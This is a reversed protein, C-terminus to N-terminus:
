QILDETVKTGIRVFRDIPINLISDNQILGCGRLYDVLSTKTKEDPVILGKFFSPAIREKLMVEHGGHFISHETQEKRIFELIGDRKHYSEDGWWWPQGPNYNRNGFSDSHYQYTGTELADLSILLRVKSQYNLKNFSMKDQCNKATLLQTFVSDSGGSWYDAGFGGLGHHGFDNADRIETSLMGTRIMSAVREYLEDDHHVGTIAATLARAGEGRAAEALGVIRYRVRGDFLHEAQMRHFYADFVGQMDPSKEIMKAKLQDLPLSFFEETREFPTAERPFFTRFLHGMKLREIDEQTSLCLAQDLNVLSLMEHFEYLTQNADIRIVVRDYLSPQNDASGILISGLGDIKIKHAEGPGFFQKDGGPLFSGSEISIGKAHSGTLNLIDQMEEPKIAKLQQLAEDIQSRFAHNVKFDLETVEKGDIIKTRFALNEGKVLAGGNGHFHSGFRVENGKGDILVVEKTDISERLSSLPHHVLHGADRGRLIRSFLTQIRKMEMYSNRRQIQLIYQNAQNMRLGAMALKACGELYRGQNMEHRAQYLSVAAQFLAFAVMAEIAGTAMFSLYAASALAQLAEECAKSYEGLWLAKGSSAAGQLGDWGTTIFLASPHHWVATALSLAALSAQGTEFLSGRWDRRDQKSIANQLHSVTRAGNMGLSLAMGAPQYQGIFPLAALAIRHLAEQSVGLDLDYRRYYTDPLYIAHRIYDTYNM